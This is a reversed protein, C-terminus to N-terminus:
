GLVQAALAPSHAFESFGAFSTPTSDVRWNCRKNSDFYVVARIDPMQALAKAADVFWQQKRTPRNVDEGVGFESVIMPKGKARGWDYFNQFITQFDTWPAKPRCPYWDYGDAGIWDVYTTGPWYQDVGGGTPLFASAQPAWVWEGRVGAFLDHVHRYAAVYHAPSVVWSQYEAADPESAYRLLAFVGAARLAAAMARLQTDYRGAAVEDTRVGSGFTLLPLRRNQRDWQVRWMWADPGDLGNVFIQDIALKRGLQQELTTVANQYDERSKTGTPSVWAGFLAGSTMPFGPTPVTSSASHNLSPARLIQGGGMSCAAAFALVAAM